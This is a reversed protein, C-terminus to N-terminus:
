HRGEVLLPLKVGQTIEILGQCDGLSHDEDISPPLHVPESLLHMGPIKSHGSQYSSFGKSQGNPHISLVVM